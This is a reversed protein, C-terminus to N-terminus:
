FGKLDLKSIDQNITHTNESMLVLFIESNYRLQSM